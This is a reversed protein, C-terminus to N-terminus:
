RQAERYAAYLRDVHATLGIRRERWDVLRLGAKFILGTRYGPRHKILWMGLRYLPDRITIRPPWDGELTYGRTM